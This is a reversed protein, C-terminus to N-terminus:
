TSGNTPCRPSPEDKAGALYLEQIRRVADDFGGVYEVVTVLNIRMRKTKV